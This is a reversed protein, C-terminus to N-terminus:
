YFNDCNNIAELFKSRAKDFDLANFEEILKERQKKNECNTIQFVLDEEKKHLEILQESSASVEQWTYKKMRAGQLASNM